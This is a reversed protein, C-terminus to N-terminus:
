RTDTERPHGRRLRNNATVEPHEVILKAQRRHAGHRGETACVLAHDLRKRIRTAKEAVRTNRCGRNARRQKRPSEAHRRTQSVSLDQRTIQSTRRETTSCCVLEDADVPEVADDRNSM